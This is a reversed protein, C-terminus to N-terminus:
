CYIKCALFVDDQEQPPYAWEEKGLGLDKLTIENIREPRRQM